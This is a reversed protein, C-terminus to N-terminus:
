KHKLVSDPPVYPRKRPRDTGPNYIRIKYDITSDPQYFLMKDVPVPPKAFGPAFTVIISSDAASNADRLKANIIFSIAAPVVFREFRLKAYDPASFTLTYMGLTVHSLLFVGNSDTYTIYPPNELVVKAHVIREGTAESTVTGRISGTDSQPQPLLFPLICLTILYPNM